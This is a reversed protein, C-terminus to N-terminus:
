ADPSRMVFLREGRIVTRITLELEPHNIIFSRIVQATHTPSVGNLEATLEIAKGAPISKWELYPWRWLGRKSAAAAVGGPIEEIDIFEM